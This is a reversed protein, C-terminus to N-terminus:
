ACCCVERHQLLRRVELMIVRCVTCLWLLDQGRMVGLLPLQQNRHLYYPRLSFRIHQRLEPVFGKVFVQAPAREVGPARPNGVSLDSGALTGTTALILIM